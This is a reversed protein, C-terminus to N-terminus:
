KTRLIPSFVSQSLPPLHGSAPFAPRSDILILLILLLRLPLPMDDSRLSGEDWKNYM